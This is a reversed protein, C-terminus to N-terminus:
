TLRRHSASGWWKESRPQIPIHLQSQRFQRCKWPQSLFLRKRAYSSVASIGSMWDYSAGDRKKEKEESRSSVKSSSLETSCQWQVEGSSVCAADCYSSTSDKLTFAYHISSTRDWGLQLGKCTQGGTWWTSLAHLSVDRSGIKISRASKRQESISFIVHSLASRSSTPTKDLANSFATSPLEM